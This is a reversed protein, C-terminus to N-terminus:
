VGTGVNLAGESLTGKSNQLTPQSRFFRSHHGEWFTLFHSSTDKRKSVHLVSMPSVSLRLQYFLIASQMCLYASARYFICCYRAFEFRFELELM